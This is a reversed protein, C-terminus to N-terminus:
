GRRGGYWQRVGRITDEISPAATMLRRGEEGDRTRQWVRIRMRRPGYPDVTLRLCREAAGVVLRALADGDCTSLDRNIWFQAMRDDGDLMRVWRREDGLNYPGTRFAMSLLDVLEAEIPVLPRGLTLEVWQVHASLEGM